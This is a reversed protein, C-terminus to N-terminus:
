YHEHVVQEKGSGVESNFYFLNLGKTNELWGYIVKLRGKMFPLHNHPKWSTSLKGYADEFRKGGM